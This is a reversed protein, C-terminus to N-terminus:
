HHPSWHNTSTCAPAISSVGLCGAADLRQPTFQEPLVNGDLLAVATAYGINMQAGIPTLPREPKWWGHQYITEGM